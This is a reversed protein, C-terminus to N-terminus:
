MVWCNGAIALKIKNFNDDVFSFLSIEDGDNEVLVKSALSIMEMYDFSDYFEIENCQRMFEKYLNESNKLVEKAIKYNRKAWDAFMEIVEKKELVIISKM